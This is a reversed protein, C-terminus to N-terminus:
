GRLEVHVADKVTIVAYYGKGAPGCNVITTSGITDMGRAEHIHGCVVLHPAHLEIFARVAKSGVHTGVLIKDVSTNLPPTHPVFVKWRASAVEKWGQEALTEIEKEDIEYPTNMPTFPSASVGFFGVDELVIGRGHVYTSHDEFTKELSRPDMNGAVTILPKGHHRLSRLAQEAERPSGNTTLDGALLVVDYGRERSLISELKEYAGHVDSCALIRM